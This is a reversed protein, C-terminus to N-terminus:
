RKRQRYFVQCLLNHWRAFCRDKELEFGTPQGEVTRLALFYQAAVVM